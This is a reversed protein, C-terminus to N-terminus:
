YLVYNFREEKENILLYGNRFEKEKKLSFDIKSLKKKICDHFDQKLGYPDNFVRISAISRKVVNFTYVVHKEKIQTQNERCQALSSKNESLTSAVNRWNKYHVKM